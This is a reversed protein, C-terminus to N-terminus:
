QCCLGAHITGSAQQHELLRALVPNALHEARASDAMIMISAQSYLHATAMANAVAAHRAQDTLQNIQADSLQLDVNSISTIAGGAEVVADLVQALASGTVNRVTVSLAQLCIWLQPLQDVEAAPALCFLLLRPRQHGMFSLTLHLVM